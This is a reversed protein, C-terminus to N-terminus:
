PRFLRGPVASWTRCSECRCDGGASHAERPEELERHSVGLDRLMHYGLSQLARREADRELWAVVAMACRRIPVGVTSAARRLRRSIPEAGIPEPTSRRPRTAIRTDTGINAM